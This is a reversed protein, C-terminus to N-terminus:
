FRDSILSEATIRVDYMLAFLEEAYGKPARPMALVRNMATHTFREDGPLTRLFARLSEPTSPDERVEGITRQVRIGKRVLAPGHIPLLLDLMRQARHAYTHEALARKRAREAIALREDPRALYYDIKARLEATTRYLPLETEPDFYSEIGKAADCLQFGGCAAIDFVRPNIADCDPDVGPHATSSHLNLNIKAGACIRSFMAGDFRQNPRQILRQLELADWDVGWIKFDYDTLGLFTQIRNFYGAGAFALDCGFEDKEADTLAVPHHLKPDCGTQVFAHHPCGAADLKAEFEGPQIHFFMDYDRCIAQWYSLHRWNEVFWFVTVIGEKRLRPALTANVPAQALIIVVDPASQMIRAYTWENLANAVLDGLQGATKKSRIGGLISEYVPWAASNDIFEAQHGLSEFGDALSRAVPLSGGYMPGVVAVSLRADELAKTVVETEIAAVFKFDLRATAPHVLVQPCREAFRKFSPDETIKEPGGGALLATVGSLVTRAAERVVAASPDVAVVEYGRSSLERIHYGLGAGVVLVPRRKKLSASDIFRVAEEAPNYRSHLWVEGRRATPEGSRATEIVLDSADPVAAHAWEAPSHFGQLSM